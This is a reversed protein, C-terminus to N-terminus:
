KRHKKIIKDHYKKLSMFRRKQLIIEHLSQKMKMSVIFIIHLDNLNKM